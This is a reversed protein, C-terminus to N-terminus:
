IEMIMRRIEESKGVLSGQVMEPKGGGKGQFRENLSKSFARLDVSRSGLIYHYGNEDTGLFAGCIGECREVARNVFNRAAVHDLEKEFLVVHREEGTLEELKQNLYREQARNLQERIRGEREKLQLVAEGVKEPKASLSVSVETVSQQKRQYDLLARMGCLITMRCGGRHRECSVIKVLGIEGSRDVHPACCACIDYGPISVIRVQGEIDIESRYDVNKLQEKTPYLVQVPVNEFVGRNALLELEKVQDGTLEGNFDLTTIEAGLHFGVNDYGYRSHVLGSLIHEGTHQQMRDFRVEFNLKGKVRSGPILPKKTEHYIAGDKERTDTVEVDDLWGVDGFQGGGEPFFATRDLVIRYGAKEGKATTKEECSLVTAEFEKRHSDKYYLRETEQGSLNMEKAEM